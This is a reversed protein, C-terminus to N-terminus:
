ADIVFKGPVVCDCLWDSRISNEVKPPKTSFFIALLASSVTKCCLTFWKKDRIEKTSFDANYNRWIRAPDWGSSPVILDFGAAGSLTFEINGQNNKESRNCTSIVISQMRSAKFDMRGDTEVSSRARSSLIHTTNEGYKRGSLIVMFEFIGCMKIQGHHPKALVAPHSCRPCDYRRLNPVKTILSHCAM